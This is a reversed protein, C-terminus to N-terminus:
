DDLSEINFKVIQGMIDLVIKDGEFDVNYPPEVFRTWMKEGNSRWCTVDLEALMIVYDQYKLWGLFGENYFDEDVKSIQKLDYILIRQGAGIFIKNTEPILLFGPSFGAVCPEYRQTVTLFPWGEKTGISIFFLEGDRNNLEYEEKLKAHQIYKDYLDPLQYQEANIIYKWITCTIM